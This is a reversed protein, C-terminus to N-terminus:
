RFIAHGSRIGQEFMCEANSGCPFTKDCVPFIEKLYIEYLKLVIPLVWIEIGYTVLKETNICLM